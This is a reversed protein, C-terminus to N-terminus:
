SVVESDFDNQEHKLIRGGHMAVIEQAVLYDPDSDGFNLSLAKAFVKVSLSYQMDGDVIRGKNITFKQGAAKIEVTVM